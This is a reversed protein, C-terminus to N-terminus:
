RSIDVTFNCGGRMLGGFNVNCVSPDEELTCFIGHVDARSLRGMQGTGGFFREEANWFVTAGAFTTDGCPVHDRRAGDSIATEHLKLLSFSAIGHSYGPIKSNDIGMLELPIKPNETTFYPHWM